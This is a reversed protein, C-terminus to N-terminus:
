ASVSEVQHLAENMATDLIELARDIEDKRVCLPPVFALVASDIARHKAVGVRLGNRMCAKEIAEALGYDPRKREKDKVVEVGILLGKGRAEGLFDNEEAVRSLRQLLYDGMNAANEILNDEFLVQINALAFSCSLSNNEMTVSHVYTNYDLSSSIKEGVMVAAIPAYSSSLGKGLILVDPVINYHEFAFSRGTRGLGVIVEDLILPIGYLDCMHRVAQLYERPPIIVGSGGLITEMIIGGITEPSEYQVISEMAKACAIGCDTPKLGLPCRYCYPVPAHIFGALLPEYKGKMIPTGSASLAAATAGHYGAYLSIIKRRGTVKLIKFALETADSGSSTFHARTLNQPALTTLVKALKIQPENYSGRMAGPWRKLQEMAASMIRKNGYGVNVSLFQSRFDMYERGSTDWIKIGSADKIMTEETWSDLRIVHERAWKLLQKQDSTAVVNQIDRLISVTESKM